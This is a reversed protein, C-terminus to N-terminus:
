LRVMTLVIIDATQPGYHLTLASLSASTSGLVPMSPLTPLTPPALPTHACRDVEDISM